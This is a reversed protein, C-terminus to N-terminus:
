SLISVLKFVLDIGNNSLKRAVKNASTKFCYQPAFGLLVIPLFFCLSFCLRSSFSSLGAGELSLPLLSGFSALLYDFIAAIFPLPAGHEGAGDVTGDAGAILFCISAVQAFIWVGAFHALRLPGDPKREITKDAASAEVLHKIAEKDSAILSA